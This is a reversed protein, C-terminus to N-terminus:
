RLPAAALALAFGLAARVLGARCPLTALFRGYADPGMYQALLAAKLALIALQCCGVLAAGTAILTACRARVADSGLMGRRPVVLLAFVVGGLAVSLAVLISGGLLSDSFDAFAQM